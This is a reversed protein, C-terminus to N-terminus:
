LDMTDPLKYGTRRSMFRRKESQRLDKVVSQWHLPDDKKTGVFEEFGHPPVFTTATTSADGLVHALECGRHSSYQSSANPNLSFSDETSFPTIDDDYDESDEISPSFGSQPLPQLKTSVNEAENDIEVGYIEDNTPHYMKSSRSLRAPQHSEGDDDDSEWSGRVGKAAVEEPRKRRLVAAVVLSVLAILLLGGAVSGISIGAIAGRESSRSTSSNTTGVGTTTDDDKVNPRLIGPAANSIGVFDTGAITPFGTTLDPDAMASDLSSQMANALDPDTLEWTREPEQLQRNNPSAAAPITTANMASNVLPTANTNNSNNSPSSSSVAPFIKATLAAAIVYCDEGCSSTADAPVAAATGNGDAADGVIVDLPLTSLSHVHFSSPADQEEDHREIFRCELYETALVQQVRNEIYEKAVMVTDNTSNPAVRLYYTWAIVQNTPRVTLSITNNHNNSRPIGARCSDLVGTAIGGNGDPETVVRTITGFPDMTPLSTPAPSVTPPLTTPALTPAQTPASTTPSPSTPPTTPGEMPPGTPQLTFIYGEFVPPPPPATTPSSTPATTVIRGNVDPPPSTPPPLPQFVPNSTPVTPSPILMLFEPESATLEAPELYSAAVEYTQAASTERTSTTSSAQSWVIPVVPPPTPPVTPSPVIYFRQDRRRQDAIGMRTSAVISASPASLLLVEMVIVSM